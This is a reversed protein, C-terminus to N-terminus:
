QQQRILAYLDSMTPDDMKDPLFSEFRNGTTMTPKPTLQLTRKGAGNVNIYGVIDPVVGLTNAAAGQVYPMTWIEKTLENQKTQTHVTTIGLPKMNHFDWMHQMLVDYTQAWHDFEPKKGGALEYTLWRQYTSLTDMIVADWDDQQEMLDTMVNQYELASSIRVRQVDPYNAAVDGVLGDECDIVLVREFGAVDSISCALSSKGRKYMGFFLMSHPENDETVRKISLGGLSKAQQPPTDTATKAPM